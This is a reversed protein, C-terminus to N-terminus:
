RTILASRPGTVGPSFAHIVGSDTSVYLMNSAVALGLARGRVSVAGLKAGTEADFFGVEADGGAALTTGALILTNPYLVAKSWVTTRATRDLAALTTDGLLYSRKGQVVIANGDSYTALSDGAPGGETIHGVTRGSRGYFLTTGALLAFTGSAERDNYQGLIAGNKRDFYFPNSRGSPMYVRTPSLLLYGQMSMENTYSRRWHDANTMTGTGADVACLYVGESPFIGAGFYANGGDVLVGSRVAFPSVPQGNNPLLYNNTGAAAHKWILKGTAAELCYASGDDSGAYVRNAAWTPAMRVPGDTFFTWRPEGTFADLCNVTHETASGFFLLGQAVAVHNVGDFLNRQKFARQSPVDVSGDKKAEDAWARAPRATRPYVWAPALNTGIGDATVGSRQADHMYVPWDSAVAQCACVLSISLAIANVTATMAALLAPSKSPSHDNM